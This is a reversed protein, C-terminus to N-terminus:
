AGLPKQFVICYTDLFWTPNLSQMEFGAETLEQVAVEQPIGHGGRNAAVGKVPAVLSLWWRPPFEILALIGGPRLVRYLNGAMEKPKKFHHYAGRVLISDCCAPPLGSEADNAQVIDVNNLGLKAAKRQIERLNKHEIDTAFVHGSVGVREAAKLAFRGAGAGVDAVVAGEFWNLISALKEIERRRARRFYAGVGVIGAGLFSATIIGRRWM